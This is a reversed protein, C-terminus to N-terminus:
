KESDKGLITGTKLDVVMTFPTFTYRCPFTYPDTGTAYDPHASATSQAAEAHPIDTAGFNDTSSLIVAGNNQHIEDINKGVEEYWIPCSPCQTDGAVMLASNYGACRMSSFSIEKEVNDLLDLGQFTLNYIQKGVTCSGGWPTSECPLLDTDPPISTEIGIESGTDTSSAPPTDPNIGTDVEKNTDTDNDIYGVTDVDINIDTTSKAGWLATDLALSISPSDEMGTDKGGPSTPSSPESSSEEGCACFLFACLIPRWKRRRAPFRTKEVNRM